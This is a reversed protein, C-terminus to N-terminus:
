EVREFRSMTQQKWTDIGKLEEEYIFVENDAPIEGEDACKQKYEFWEENSEDRIREAEVKDTTRYIEIGQSVLIYEKAM